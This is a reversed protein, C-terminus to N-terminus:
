DRLTEKDTKHDGRKCLACIENRNKVNIIEYMCGCSCSCRGIVTEEIEGIHDM